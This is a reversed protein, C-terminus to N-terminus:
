VVYEVEIKGIKRLRVGALLPEGDSGTGVERGTAEYAVRGAFGGFLCSFTDVGRLDLVVGGGPMRWGAYVSLGVETLSDRHNTSRAGPRAYGFRVYVRRGDRDCETRRADWAARREAALREREAERVRVRAEYAERLVREAAVAALREQDAAVEGPNDVQRVAADLDSGPPVERTRGGISVRYLYRRFDRGGQSYATWLRKDVLVWVQGGYTGTATPTCTPSTM